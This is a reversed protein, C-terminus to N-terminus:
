GNVTIDLLTHRIADAVAGRSVLFPTASGQERAVLAVLIHETGLYGHRMRRAEISALTVAQNFARGGGPAVKCMPLQNISKAVAAQLEDVDLGLRKLITVAMSKREVLIGLLLYRDDDDVGRRLAAVEREAVSIARRARDTRPLGFISRLM